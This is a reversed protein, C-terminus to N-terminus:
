PAATPQSSRDSFEAVARFGAVCFRGRLRKGGRLADAASDLFLAAETGLGDAEDRQAAVFNDLRQSIAAVPDVPASM